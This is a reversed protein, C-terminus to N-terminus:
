VNKKLKKDFYEYERLIHRTWEGDPSKPAEYWCDGVIVDLKGDKNVDAVGAGEGRFKRDLTIKKWSIKGRVGSGEGGTPRPSVSPQADSQSKISAGILVIAGLLWGLRKM